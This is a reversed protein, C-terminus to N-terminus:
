LNSSLIMTAADESRSPTPFGQFPKDYIKIDLSKKKEKKPIFKM